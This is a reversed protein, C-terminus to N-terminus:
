GKGQHSSPPVRARNSDLAVVFGLASCKVGNQGNNVNGVCKQVNKIFIKLINITPKIITIGVM